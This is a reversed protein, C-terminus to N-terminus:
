SADDEEEEHSFDPPEFMSLVVPRQLPVESDAIHNEGNAMGAVDRKDWGTHLGEKYAAFRKDCSWLALSYGLFFVLSYALVM